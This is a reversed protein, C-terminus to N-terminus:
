NRGNQQEGELSDLLEPLQIISPIMYDACTGLEEEGSVGSLVGVATAGADAAFIMDNRTDGAVIIEEPMVGTQDAFDYLMDPHPKPKRKGDDAGIYDLYELVGLKKMCMTASQVTDATAIGLHMGKKKLEDFLCPLKALPIIEADDSETYEYFLKQIQGEVTKENIYLGRAKLAESIDHAIEPYSKYALAGDPDIQNGSVGIAQYLVEDIHDYTEFQNMRIFEPIVQKAAELWLSFFDILTGDKDFLIGKIKM